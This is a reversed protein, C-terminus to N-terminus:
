NVVTGITKAVEKRNAYYYKMGSSHNQGGTAPDFEVTTGDDLYTIRYKNDDTVYAVSIPKVNTSGKNNFFVLNNQDSNEELISNEIKETLSSNWKYQTSGINGMTKNPDTLQAVSVCYYDLPDEGFFSTHSEGGPWLNMGENEILIDGIAEAVGVMVSKRNNKDKIYVKAGSSNGDGSFTIKICQEDPLWELLAQNDDGDAPAGEIHASTLDSLTNEADDTTWGAKTQQLPVTAPPVNDEDNIVLASLEAYASRINALDASERSKELLTSFVPIAIAVLVAIIAVVILLEALTFGFCSFIKRKSNKRNSKKNM